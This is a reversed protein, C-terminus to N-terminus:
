EEGVLDRYRQQLTLRARMVRMKAASVGVGLIEAIKDYSLEESDRLQLVTRDKESLRSIAQEILDIEAHSVATEELTEQPSLLADLDFLPADEFERQRQRKKLATRCTNTTIQFLWTSFKARGEFNRIARYVRLFVEQAQEEAELQNGMLRYCSSMVQREYRAVLAAFPRTDDPLRAQCLAVLEEDSLQDM